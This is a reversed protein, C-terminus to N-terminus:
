LSNTDDLTAPWVALRSLGASSLSSSRWLSRPRTRGHARSRVTCRAPELRLRGRRGNDFIRDSSDLGAARFSEAQCDSHIAAPRRELLRRYLLAATGIVLWQYVELIGTLAVNAASGTACSLLLVGGLVCLASATFMPNYQVFWRVFLRPHPSLISTSAPNTSQTTSDMRAASQM